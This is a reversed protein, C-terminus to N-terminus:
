GDSNSLMKNSLLAAIQAEISDYDPVSYFHPEGHDDNVPNHYSWGTCNQLAHHLTDLLHKSRSASGAASKRKDKM